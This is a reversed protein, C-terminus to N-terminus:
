SLVATVFGADSGRGLPRGLQEAVLDLRHTETRWGHATLWQELREGLGGRWLDTAAATDPASVRSSSAGLRETAVASGTASLGTVTALVHEVQAADLYVLLGEALWGTPAAPDLGAAVAPARWDGTLDAAVVRRDCRPTEDSMQGHKVALVDPLDIEFVTTAAPWPLRWARTDLGAGLLVVQRIGADLCGRLWDDYFRTRIIIQFALARRAASPPTGDDDGHAAFRAAFPDDFLRDDRASELARVRAVGIATRSVGPLTV